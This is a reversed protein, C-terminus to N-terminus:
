QLDEIPHRGQQGAVSLPDIVGAGHQPLVAVHRAGRHEENQLTNQLAARCGAVQRQHQAEPGAKRTLAQEQTPRSPTLLTHHCRSPRRSGSWDVDHHYPGDTTGM